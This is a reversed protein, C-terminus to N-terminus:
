SARFQHPQLPDSTVHIVYGDRAGRGCAIIPADILVDRVPRASFRDQARSGTDDVRAGRENEDSSTRRREKYICQNGTSVKLWRWVCELLVLLGGPCGEVPVDSERESPCIASVGM